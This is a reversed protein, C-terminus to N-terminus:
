GNMLKVVKSDPLYDIINLCGYDQQISFMNKLDLGLANCLIVRNVGGHVVLAIDNGNQESRIQNLCAMIRKGFQFISEGEGPVKFHLLDEQRKKLEDPYMDRIEKLTMGEWDGFNMERLAPLHRIPIDHHSAVFSAGLKARKLDSSYVAKIDTMSLREAVKQMQLKGTETLDVDTYGYIPFNEYGNIQGHRILYLRNERKM